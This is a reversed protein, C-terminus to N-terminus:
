RENWLFRLLPKSCSRGTVTLPFHQFAGNRRVSLMVTGLSSRLHFTSRTLTPDCGSIFLKPWSTAQYAALRAVISQIRFVGCPSQNGRGFLSRAQIYEARNRSLITSCIRISDCCRVSISQVAAKPGYSVNSAAIGADAKPALASAPCPLGPNGSRVGYRFDALGIQGDVTPLYRVM